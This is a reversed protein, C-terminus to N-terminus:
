EGGFMVKWYELSCSVFPPLNPHKDKMAAEAVSGGSINKLLAAGLDSGLQSGKAERAVMKQELADCGNSASELVQPAWLFAVALLVIVLILRRM